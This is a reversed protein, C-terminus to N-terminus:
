AEQYQLFVDITRRYEETIPDVDDLENGVRGTVPLAGLLTPGDRFLAVLDEAVAEAAGYTTAYVDFQVRSTVLRVGGSHTQPRPTSIIQYTVVPLTAGQPKRLPYVPRGTAEAVGDQINTSLSM